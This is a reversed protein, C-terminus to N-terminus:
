HTEKMRVKRAIDFRDEDDLSWLDHGHYIILTGAPSHLGLYFQWDKYENGGRGIEYFSWADFAEPLVIGKNVFWDDVLEIDQEFEIAKLTKMESRWTDPVHWHESDVHAVLIDYGSIYMLPDTWHISGHSRYPMSSSIDVAHLLKRELYVRRIFHSCIVAIIIVLLVILVVTLMKTKKM